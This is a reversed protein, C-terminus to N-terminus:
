KLEEEYSKICKKSFLKKILIIIDKFFIVFLLLIIIASYLYMYPINNCVILAEVIMLFLSFSLKLYNVKFPAIKQCCIMRIVFVVFFSIMTTYAVGITGFLKIFSYNLAINIIAGVLTSIFLISTKKTARFISALFGALSSFVSACVLPAVFIWGSFYDNSLLLKCIFKSLLITTAGGFIMIILFFSFISSYFSSRDNSNEESIASISWANNFVSAVTTILSPIKHVASYVGSAGLGVFAIIFYKDASNNIWWSIMTPIIPLSYILMKKLLSPNIKFHILEKYVGAWIIVVLSSCFYSIIMSLLYGRLGINFGLLFILNCFILVITQVIGQIAFILNKNIGRCYFSLCNSLTYGLYLLVFYWWYEHMTSGFLNTLPYVALLFVTSLLIFLFLVSVIENKKVDKTFLFRLCSEAIALTLIPYILNVVSNLLDAVGYEETTLVATYLPLLFFVLIKSAFTSIGFLLTDLTLKKYKNMIM